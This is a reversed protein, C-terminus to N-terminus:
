LDIPDLREEDREAREDRETEPALEVASDGAEAGQEAPPQQDSERSADDTQEVVQDVPPISDQGGESKEFQGAVQSIQQFAGQGAQMAAQPASAIMGGIQAPAQVAQSGMQMATSMFQGMQGQAGAGGAGATPPAAASPALQTDAVTRIEEGGTQDTSQYAARAGALNGAFRQERAHTEAVKATLESALGPMVSSILTSM